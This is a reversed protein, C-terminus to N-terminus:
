SKRGFNSAPRDTVMFVSPSEPKFDSSRGDRFEKGYHFGTEDEYGEPSYHECVALVVLAFWSLALIIILTM